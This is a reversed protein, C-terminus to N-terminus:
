GFQDSGILNRRNTLLGGTTIAEVQAMRPTTEPALTKVVNLWEENLGLGEWEPLDPPSSSGSVGCDIIKM